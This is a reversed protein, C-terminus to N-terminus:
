LGRISYHLFDAFIRELHKLFRYVIQDHALELALDKVRESSLFMFNYFQPQTVLYLKTIGYIGYIFQM